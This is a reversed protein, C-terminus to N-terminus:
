QNEGKVLNAFDERYRKATELMGEINTISKDMDNILAWGYKQAAEEDTLGEAMAKDFLSEERPVEEHYGFAVVGSSEALHMAALPVFAVLAIAIWLECFNFFLLTCLVGFGYVGFLLARM